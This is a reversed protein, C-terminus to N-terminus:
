NGVYHSGYCYEYAVSLIEYLIVCRSNLIYAMTKRFQHFLLSQLLSYIFFGFRHLFRCSILHNKSTQEIEVRM